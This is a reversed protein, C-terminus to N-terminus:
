EWIAFVFTLKRLHNVCGDHQVYTNLLHETQTQVLVTAKRGGELYIRPCYRLKVMVAEKWTRELENNGIV